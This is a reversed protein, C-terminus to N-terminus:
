VPLYKNLVKGNKFADSSELKLVKEKKFVSIGDGIVVPNVIIYYEDILNQKILALVFEGCGYVVMDKGEENKLAEIAKRLDGNEIEVNPM